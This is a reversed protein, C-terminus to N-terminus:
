TSDGRVVRQTERSTLVGLARTPVHQPSPWGCVLRRQGQARAMAGM